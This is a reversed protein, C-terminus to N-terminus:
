KGQTNRKRENKLALININQKQEMHNSGKIRYEFFRFYKSIKKLITLTLM